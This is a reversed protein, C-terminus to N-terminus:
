LCGAYSSSTNVCGLDIDERMYQAKRRLGQLDFPYLVINLTTIAYYYFGFLHGLLVTKLTDVEHDFYLTLRPYLTACDFTRHGKQRNLQINTPATNQSCSIHAILTKGFLLIIVLRDANFLFNNAIDEGELFRNPFLVSLFLQTVAVLENTFRLMGLHGNLENLLKEM